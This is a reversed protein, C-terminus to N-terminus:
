NLMYGSYIRSAQLAALMRFYLADAITTNPLAKLMKKLVYENKMILRLLFRKFLGYEIALEDYGLSVAKRRTFARRQQNNLWNELDLRDIENHCVTMRSDIYFDVAARRLRVPFDYDEFGAFPFEENYGGTKEFDSRQISLHFSAISKSAFLENDRWSSDGYWGKFSIMQFTKLFRTFPQSSIKELADAPYEWNLNFCAHSHEAHLKLIHDVSEKSIIIDNDLFLIVEGTSNKFGFNRAAAVGSKPNNFLHVNSAAPIEPIENTEDNIVLIEADIHQISRVAAALTADFIQKRGKTPIIVSLRM